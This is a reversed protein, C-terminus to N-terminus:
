LAQHIKKKPSLKRNLEKRVKVAVNKLRIMKTNQDDIGEIIRNLINLSEEIDKKSKSYNGMEEIGQIRKEMSLQEFQCIIRARELQLPDCFKCLIDEQDTKNAYERLVGIMTEYYDAISKINLTLITRANDIEKNLESSKQEISSNLRETNNKLVIFEEERKSIEKKLNEFSSDIEKKQNKVDLGIVVFYLSFVIGVVSVYIGILTGLKDYSFDLAENDYESNVLVIAWTAIGLALVSLSIAVWVSWNVKNKKDELM